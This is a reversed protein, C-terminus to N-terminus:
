WIFIRQHQNIYCKAVNITILRSGNNVVYETTSVVYM